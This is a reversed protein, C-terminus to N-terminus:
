DRAIAERLQRARGQLSRFYDTEVIASVQRGKQSEDIQIKLERVHNKLEQQRVYSELAAAALLCLAEIVQQIGMEFPCVRSDGPRSANMLCVVGVIHGNQGRLPVALCTETCYHHRRDFEEVPDCIGSTDAYVDPLNVSEGTKAALEAISAGCCLDLMQHAPHSSFADLAIKLSDIKLIVPKLSQTAKDVIFVSGGDARCLRKADTVIRDMLRNWDSEYAMAVGIPIVVNMLVDARSQEADLLRLLAHLEFDDTSSVSHESM